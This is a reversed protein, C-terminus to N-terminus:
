HHQIQNTRGSDRMRVTVSGRINNNNDDDDDDDDDNLNEFHKVAGADVQSRSCNAKM